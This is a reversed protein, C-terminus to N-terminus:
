VAIKRLMSSPVVGRREAMDCLDAISIDDFWGLINNEIEGWLPGVVKTGLESASLSVDEDMDVENVIRIVDGLTIEHAPRALMYGGRPGRVGRLVGDRVLRQMVQELYRQPIGQRKTIERAQVPEPRANYAIDAVAELAYLTKKPLSLM